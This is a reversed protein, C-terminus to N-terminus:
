SIFQTAEIPNCGVYSTDKSNISRIITSALTYYKSDVLISARQANKITTYLKTANYIIKPMALYGPHQALRFDWLIKYAGQKEAADLIIELLGFLDKDFFYINLSLIGDKWTSKFTKGKYDM